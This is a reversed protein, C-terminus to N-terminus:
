AAASEDDFTAASGTTAELTKLRWEQAERLARLTKYLQNDLTTQYRAFLELDDAALVLRKARVQDALALLQPRREAKNLEARCWDLLEGVYGTLGDQFGRVHDAPNSDEADSELQGWVLPASKPLAELSIEGLAEIEDAVARCWEAHM